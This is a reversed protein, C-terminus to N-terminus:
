NPERHPILQSVGGHHSNWVLPLHLRPPAPTSTPRLTPTPVPTSTPPPAVCVTPVPFARQEPEGRDFRLEVQAEANTPHCGLQQPEVAYTITVGQPPWRDYRWLLDQGRTRPAPVGSGWVYPANDVLTDVVDAGTVRVTTLDVPIQSFLSPYRRSTGEVFFFSPSSAIAELPDLEASGRGAVVVVLIGEDYAQQAEAILDDDGGDNPSGVLLVMAELFEEAVAMARGRRLMLRGARVGRVLDSGTRPYFREAAEVVADPDDTLESLNDVYGSYAALGVRSVSFDLQEVFAAVALRMDNMRRGGMYVSNDFVLAVHLPVQLRSCEARVALTIRAEEGLTVTDPVAVKEVVTQCGGVASPVSARVAVLPVAAAGLIAASGVLAPRIM